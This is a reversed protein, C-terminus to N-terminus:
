NETEDAMAKIQQILGFKVKDDKYAELLPASKEAFLSKDPRTITVGEAEVAKLSEEESDSWLKRQVPVSELAAEKLWKKEQASLENWWTLSVLLVDPVSTHEDLSYYKCVEYHRSFFFSPPNNEAGDVVGQQLASYLEGFSIPTPSGGLANVMNVATASKMVRIKKGVLDDPSNVPADKTYFSRSGADYYCLGMLRFDEGEKLLREGIDGNLVRFLHERDKFLYPLGLVRFNPAFNEMTAASVKTIALSGIQLLEICEREGGLQASPYIQIALKGGSKEALRKAMYEMGLHVPHGTDLGHALKLVKTEKAGSCQAIFLILILLPLASHRKM